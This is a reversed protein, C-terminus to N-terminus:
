FEVKPVAREKEPVEYYTAPEFGYIGAFFRGPFRKILTNYEQVVQNYRMREVSIRNETGALEDMLRQFSENAKLNPYNEVVVLLRGLASDMQRSADIRDPISGAGAMKARANAINELIEKEHISFGKVTNVLNPILDNRRKLQNDVQAWAAGIQEKLTVINNYNSIFMGGIAIVLLLIVGITIWVGKKM